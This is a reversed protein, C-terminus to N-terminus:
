VRVNASRSTRSAARASAPKMRTSAAGTPVSCRVIRQRHGIAGPPNDGAGCQDDTAVIQWEAEAIEAEDQEVAGIHREHRAVRAGFRDKLDLM